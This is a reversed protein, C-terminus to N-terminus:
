QPLPVSRLVVPPLAREHARREGTETWFPWASSAVYVFRDGLVVGVTMEGELDSPADLVDAGTLARGAADLRVRMVRNPTSGNHIAILAGAHVRLGDVGRLTRGDAATLPALSDTALDWRFLGRSWDAVYAVDGTATVAIGQPSRLLASRVTELEAANRRLRYLVGRLGDSVLVSGDPALAIEGPMGDGAGLRLRRRLAGDPYSVELLEAVVGEDAARPAMHPLRATTLWVAARASDFVAGMVAGVNADAGLLWRRSGTPSVVLVDRHRLSTILLTGDRPDAALGEAFFLTDSDIVRADPSQALPLEADIGPRAPTRDLAVRAAAQLRRVRVSDSGGGPIRPPLSEPPIGLMREILVVAALYTGERNAHLGDSSYPDLPPTAALAATFADGAPALIGETVTAATAYSLLAAAADFRRGSSPWIQYFVPEAGATRIHPAWARAWTQLHVQSEPLASTGQQLVVWRWASGALAEHVVGTAYHDSLAYNAEAVSAVRLGTDGMSRALDRVMRPLDNTYTHSNGVFLINRTGPLRPPDRQPELLELCGAALPACLAIPLMLAPRM